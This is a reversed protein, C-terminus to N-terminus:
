RNAKASNEASRHDGAAVVNRKPNGSKCKPCKPYITNAHGCKYCFVNRELALCDRFGHGTKRCNWCEITVSIAEVDVDQGLEEPPDYSEEDMLVESINRSGRFPIQSPPKVDRRPFKREIENCSVRLQELSSITMPYVMRALDGRLNNKTIGLIDYETVPELLRSRLLHIDDIFENISEGPRQKREVIDKMLEFNNKPTDYRAILANRLSPWDKVLGTQIQLWWWEYAAGSVLTYFDAYIEQWPIHYQQQLHALRFIFDQVRIGRPSGDFRIGFKEVRSGRYEGNPVQKTMSDNKPPVYALNPLQYQDVPTYREKSHGVATQQIGGSIHLEPVTQQQAMGVPQQINQISELVRNQNLTLNKIAESLSNMVGYVKAMEQNVSEQVLTRIHLQADNISEQVLGRITSDIEGANHSQIQPGTLTKPITGTSSSEAMITDSTDRIDHQTNQKNNAMKGGTRSKWYKPKVQPSSRNLDFNLERLRKSKRKVKEASGNM